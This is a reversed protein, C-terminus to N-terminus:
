HLVQSNIARGDEAIRARRYELADRCAECGESHDPLGYIHERMRPAVVAKGLVELDGKILADLRTTSIHVRPQDAFPNRPERFGKPDIVRLAIDLATQVEGLELSEYAGGPDETFSEEVRTIDNEARRYLHGYGLVLTRVDFATEILGTLKWLLELYQSSITLREMGLDRFDKITAVPCGLYEALTDGDWGTSAELREAHNLITNAFFAEESTLESLLRGRLSSDRLLFGVPELDPLPAPIADLLADTM